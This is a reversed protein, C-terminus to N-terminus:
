GNSVGSRCMLLLHRSFTPDPLIAKIDYLTGAFAVRMSPKVDRRERITIRTDVEAQVATAAIFERGSMPVVEAPILADASSGISQWDEVDEGSAEDKTVVLAQIDVRHRLRQALM